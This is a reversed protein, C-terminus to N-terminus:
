GPGRRTGRRTATAAPRAPRATRPGPRPLPVPRGTLASLAAAHPDGGADLAQWQAADTSERTIYRFTMAAATGAQPSRADRRAADTVSFPADLHHAAAIFRPHMPVAFLHDTSGILVRVTGAECEAALTGAARRHDAAFRIESAPVCNGNLRMALEGRINWRPPATDLGADVNLQWVCIQDSGLRPAALSTFRIGPLEFTEADSARTVHM